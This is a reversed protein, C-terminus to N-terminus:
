VGGGRCWKDFEAWAQADAETAYISGGNMKIHARLNDYYVGDKFGAQASNAESIYYFRRQADHAMPEPLVWERGNVTLTITITRKIARRDVERGYFYAVYAGQHEGASVVWYVTGDPPAETMPVVDEFTLPKVPPVVNYGNARLLQEAAELEAQETVICYEVIDGCDDEDVLHGWQYSVARGPGRVSGNHLKVVVEQARMVPCEGGHWKIWPGYIKKTTM